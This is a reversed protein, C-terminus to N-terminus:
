TITQGFIQKTLTERDIDRKSKAVIEIPPMVSGNLTIQARDFIYRNRPDEIEVIYVGNPLPTSAAFQGLKNTKLARLPLGDKDRVTVLVGPLLANDHDKLIGTVVNPFTTLRPLGARVASTPGMVKVTPGPSTPQPVVGAPRIPTVPRFASQQKMTRLEQEAAIKQQQMATVQKQLEIMHLDADTKKQLENEMIRIKEELAKIPNPETSSITQPLVPTQTPTSLPAKPVQVAQKVVTPPVSHSSANPVLSDLWNGVADFMGPSKKPQAFVTGNQNAYLREVAPTTPKLQIPTSQKVAPQEVKKAPIAPPLPPPAVGTKPESTPPMRHWIYQTPTYISKLFSLVWVDMPREEIPM